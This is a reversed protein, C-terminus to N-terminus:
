KLSIWLRAYKSASLLSAIFAPHSSAISRSCIADSSTSPNLRDRTPNESSSSTTRSATSSGSAAASTSSSATGSGGACGTVVGASTHSIPLWRRIQPSQRSAATTSFNIAPALAFPAIVDGGYAVCRSYSEVLPNLGTGGSSYTSHNPATAAPM